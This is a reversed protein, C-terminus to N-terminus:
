FERGCVKQERGCVLEMMDM